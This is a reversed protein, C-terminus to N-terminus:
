SVGLRAVLHGLFSSSFCRQPAHTPNGAAPARGPETHGLACFLPEVPIHRQVLLAALEQLKIKADVEAELPYERSVMKSFSLDFYHRYVTKREGEGLSEQSQLHPAVPFVM